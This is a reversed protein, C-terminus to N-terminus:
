ALLRDGLFEAQLTSSGQAPISPVWPARGQPPCVLAARRAEGQEGASLVMLGADRRAWREAVRVCQIPRVPKLWGTCEIGAVVAPM